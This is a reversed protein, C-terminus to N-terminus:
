ETGLRFVAAEIMNEITEVDVTYGHGVLYELVYKKKEAGRGTGDYIQEAAEVAVTVLMRVKALKEASLKTRIWPLLFTTTLAVALAIVAEIIPTLNINM